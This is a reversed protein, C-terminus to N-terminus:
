QKLIASLKKDTENEWFKTKELSIRLITFTFFSKKLIRKLFKDLPNKSASNHYYRTDGYKLYKKKRIGPKLIIKLLQVINYIIEMLACKIILKFAEMQAEPIAYFICLFWKLNHSYFYSVGLSYQGAM